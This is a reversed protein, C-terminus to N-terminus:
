ATVRFTRAYGKGPGLHEYVVTPRLANWRHGLLLALGAPAALFLHIEDTAGDLYTRVADRIALALAAAAPGDPVSEAHAGSAPALALMRGVPVESLYTTVESTADAAISVVVALDPGDGVHRLDAALQPPGGPEDSTWIQHRQLTSVNFGLVERLACGAGFWMPLRMQGAVVVRSRGKDRLQHAAAELRPWVTTQWDAPTQLQRRSFPEDGDYLEVFRAAVDAQPAALDDDIGEVVFLAGPQGARGIRDEVMARLDGTAITREREQVWERVLATGSDVAGQDSALGLAYLQLEALEREGAMSRGTVFRLCGLFALLEAESVGLHGAWASREGNLSSDRVAPVVLSSRRDIMKMIPDDPDIDRDTVLQLYPRGDIGGLQAWSAHFRQLLSMRGKRSPTTMWGSSVPTQADVAHKVQTYRAPANRSHLVIDDVNGADSAEVTVATVGNGRIARLVENLTVLHQYDDGELRVGSPSRGPIDPM